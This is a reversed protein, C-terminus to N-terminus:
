EHPASLWPNVRTLRPTIAADYVLCESEPDLQVSTVAFPPTTVQLTQDSGGNYTDVPIMRVDSMNAGRLAVNFKCGQGPLV